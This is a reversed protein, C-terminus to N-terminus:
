QTQSDFALFYSQNILCVIFIHSKCARILSLYAGAVQMLATDDTALSIERQLQGQGNPALRLLHGLLRACVIPPPCHQPSKLDPAEAELALCRQYAVHFASQPFPNGPLPMPNQLYM